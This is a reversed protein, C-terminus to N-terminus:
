AIIVEPILVNNNYREEEPKFGIRQMVRNGNNKEKEMQVSFSTTDRETPEHNAVKFKDEYYSILKMMLAVNSPISQNKKYVNSKDPISKDIIQYGEHRGNLDELFSEMSLMPNVNEFQNTIFINSVFIAIVSVVYYSNRTKFHFWM